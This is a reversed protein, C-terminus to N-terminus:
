ASEEVAPIEAGSPAPHRMGALLRPALVPGAGPFSHFIAFDPHAAATQEIQGDLAAIGERLATIVEVLINTMM